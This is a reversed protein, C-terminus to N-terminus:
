VKMVNQCFKVFNAKQIERRECEEQDSREKRRGGIVSAEITVVSVKVMIFGILTGILGATITPLVPIGNLDRAEKIRQRREEDSPRQKTSLVRSVTKQLKSKTRRGPLSSKPSSLKSALRSNITSTRSEKPTSSSTSPPQPTVQNSTLSPPNIDQNSDKSTKLSTSYSYSPSHSPYYSPYTYQHRKLEITSTTSSTTSSSSSSTPRRKSVIRVCQNNQPYTTTSIHFSTTYTIIIFTLIITLMILTLTHTEKDKKSKEELNLFNM